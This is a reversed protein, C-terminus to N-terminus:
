APVAAPATRDRADLMRVAFGFCREILAPQMIDRPTGQAAVSFSAGALKAM